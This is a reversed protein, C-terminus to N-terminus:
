KQQIHSRIIGYYFSYFQDLVYRARYKEVSGSCNEPAFRQSNNLVELTATGIKGLDRNVVKGSFNEKVVLKVEGVDTTVVPLGCALAELVSRPMGEFASALLFVDCIGMLQAVENQPLSGLFKVAHELGMQKVKKQAEELLSGTGVILLRAMSNELYIYGFSDILTLPDKQGELRGVFLILKNQPNLGQERMFREYVKKKEDEAFPHFTEEDVWTPLFCFRDGIAPYRKKYFEVADRRVLFVKEMDTILMKELRFYFWPFKQWKVETHPNYLDMMHGHIVLLKKNLSRKFPLSPEIRHFELIRNELPIQTKYSFLSLTFRLSLPIKTRVNEDGVHVVPLFKFRKGFLEIEQWKGVPREKKSSSVGVFEIAFDDPSYKIFNKLFTEIGGIKSGLPDM